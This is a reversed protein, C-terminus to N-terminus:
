ATPSDGPRAALVERLDDDLGLETAWRRLYVLDLEDGSVALVGAIDRRQRESGGLRSWELKALILDEATAVWLAVDDVVVPIRRAMESVSFPRDKRVILDVKAGTAPDIVNCMSRHELAAIEDGCYLGAERLRGVALRFAALDPDIVLDVDNTARPEGHFTSAHSGTLMHPIGAQDLADVVTALLRFASM